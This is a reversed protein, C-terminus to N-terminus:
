PKTAPAPGGPQSLAKIQAPPEFASPAIPDYSVEKLTTVMQQGMLSTTTTGAYKIGGFDRYDSFAATVDVKGMPSEQKSQLSLLLGSETDFCGFAEDGDRSVMRVRFCPRGAASDRAVTELTPYLRALDSAADFDAMRVAQALESGVLVRPGQVPNVSWAVQGDYGSLMEGMGPMNSKVLMKNPRSAMTEVTLTMGMAPMAMEAVIRRSQYRALAQKGGIAAVYRDVVQQAPPLQQASASGAGLALALALSASVRRFPLNHM